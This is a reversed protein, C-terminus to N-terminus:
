ECRTEKGAPAAVQYLGEFSEGTGSDGHLTHGLNGVWFVYWVVIVARSAFTIHMFLLSLHTTLVVGCAGGDLAQRAQEVNIVRVQSLVLGIFANCGLQAVYWCLFEKAKTGPVCVYNHLKGSEEVGFASGRLM